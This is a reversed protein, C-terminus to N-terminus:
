SPQVTIHRPDNLSIYRQGNRSVRVAGFMLMHMGALHALNNIELLELMYLAIDQPLYINPTSLGETKLWFGRYDSSHDVGVIRGFVGLTFNDHRACIDPLAVFFDCARFKGLGPIEIVQQSHHFAPNSILQRLLPGMRMHRLSNERVKEMRLHEAYASFEDEMEINDSPVSDYGNRAGSQSTLDVAIRTNPDIWAGPSGREQHASAAAQATRQGCGEAHPRAGFCSERGNQSQKRFFARGGCEPCVLNQRRSLFDDNSLDAFQDAGYTSDDQTCRAKQMQFVGFLKPLDNILTQARIQPHGSLRRKLREQNIRV